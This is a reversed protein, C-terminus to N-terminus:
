LVVVGDKVWFLQYPCEAVSLIKTLYERNTDTIFVQGFRDEKILQVLRAVRSADLKDFIDDLLLIPQDNKIKKLFEYQALKLAILYTKNQGQSGIKRIPYGEMNMELDDKHVGKTTYGVIKDKERSARLLDSLSANEQLQSVYRLSVNEKGDSVYRHIEQFYPLFMEIFKTRQEYIYLGSVAMQEEITEYFLADQVENKIMSNRQTLLNKYTLLQCLYNKDYQSIFGDVFKRREESTGLILEEDSPSILVLPLFGIHDTLKEYEKKDRKFLKKQRRKVGCYIEVMEGKVQYDGSLMFFESDHRINQSDIANTHSKCLSLYYVADLLNTKGVGNDGIFCNIKSSFTLDAEEINKYNVIKLRQLFM